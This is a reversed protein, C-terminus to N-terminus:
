VLDSPRSPQSEWIEAWEARTAEDIKAINATVDDGIRMLGMRPAYRRTVWRHANYGQLMKHKWRQIGANKNKRVVYKRLSELQDRFFIYEAETPLARSIWWDRSHMASLKILLRRLRNWTKIKQPGLVMRHTALLRREADYIEIVKQVAPQDPNEDMFRLKKKTLRIMQTSQIRQKVGRKHHYKRYYSKNGQMHAYREMRESLIELITDIAQRKTTKDDDHNSHHNELFQQADKWQISKYERIHALKREMELKEEDKVIKRSQPLPMPMCRVKVRQKLTNLSLNVKLSKHTKFLSIVSLGTVLPLAWPPAWVHDIRHSNTTNIVEENNIIALILAVDLHTGHSSWRQLVRSQHEELNLDGLIFYPTNTPLNLDVIWDEISMLLQDTAVYDHLIGYINFFLIPCEIQGSGLHIRVSQLRGAKYWTEASTGQRPILTTIYPSLSKAYALGVGKTNRGAPPGLLWSMHTKRDAQNANYARAGVDFESLTIHGTEQLFHLHVNEANTQELILDQKGHASTVNSSM